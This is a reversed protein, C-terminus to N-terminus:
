GFPLLKHVSDLLEAETYPKKLFAGGGRTAGEQVLGSIFLVRIDPRDEVLRKALEQGAMGPMVVDTVLLDIAGPHQRSTKLASQGDSAFLVTYGAQQLMKRTVDRVVTSDDVVLITRAQRFPNGQIVSAM